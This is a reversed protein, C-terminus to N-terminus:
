KILVWDWGFDAKVCEKASKIIKGYVFAVDDGIREDVETLGVELKSTRYVCDWAWCSRWLGGSYEIRPRGGVRGFKRRVPIYTGDFSYFIIQQRLNCPLSFFSTPRKNATRPQQTQAHPEENNTVQSM